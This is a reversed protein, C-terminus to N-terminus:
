KDVRNSTTCTHNVIKHNVVNYECSDRGTVQGGSYLTDVLIGIAGFSFCPINSKDLFFNFFLLHGYKVYFYENYLKLQTIHQQRLYM